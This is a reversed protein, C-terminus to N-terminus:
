SSLADLHTQLFDVAHVFHQQLLALLSIHVACMVDAWRHERFIVTGAGALNRRLPRRGRLRLGPLRPLQRRQARLMEEADRVERIALGLKM